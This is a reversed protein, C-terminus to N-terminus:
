ASTLFSFGAGNLSEPEQERLFVAVDGAVSFVTEPLRQLHVVDAFPLEAPEDLRSANTPDLKV